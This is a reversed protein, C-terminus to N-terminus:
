EGSTRGKSLHLPGHHPFRLLLVFLLLLLTVTVQILINLSRPVGQAPTVDHILWLHWKISVWQTRPVQQPRDNM